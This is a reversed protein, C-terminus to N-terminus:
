WWMLDFTCNSLLCVSPAFCLHIHFLFYSPPRVTAGFNAILWLPMGAKEFEGWFIDGLADGKEPFYVFNILGQFIATNLFFGDIEGSHMFSFNELLEDVRTKIADQYTADSHPINEPIIQFKNIISKVAAVM